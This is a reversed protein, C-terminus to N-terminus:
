TPSAALSEAAERSLPEDNLLVGEVVDYRGGGRHITHREVAGAAAGARQYFPTIREERVFLRRVAYGISWFAEPSLIAGSLVRAGGANFPRRVIAGALEFGPIGERAMDMAM